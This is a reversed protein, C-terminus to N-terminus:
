VTWCMMRCWALLVVLLFRSLFPATSDWTPALQVTCSDAKGQMRCVTLLASGARTELPREVEWLVLCPPRTKHM